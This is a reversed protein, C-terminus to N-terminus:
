PSGLNGAIVDNASIPKYYPKDFPVTTGRGRARVWRAITEISRPVRERLSKLRKATGDRPSQWEVVYDSQQPPKAFIDSSSIRESITCIYTPMNNILEVRSRCEVPDKTLYWRGMRGPTPEPGDHCFMLVAKIKFGNEPSFIRYILEPSFQWFGHGMYNNAINVQIFHGGIKLMEMCNKFAQPANFVHEILGGEYVVSYKGKLEPPLPANMDHIFTASEYDSADVSSVHSAGLLKFLPECFQGEEIPAPPLNIKSLISSAIGPDCNFTQRGIMITDAFDVGMRKACCLLQVSPLDVGM